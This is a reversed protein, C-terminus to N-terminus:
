IIGLFFRSRAEKDEKAITIKMKKIDNVIWENVVEKVLIMKNCCAGCITFVCNVRKSPIKVRGPFKSLRCKRRRTYPICDVGMARISTFNTKQLIVLLSSLVKTAKSIMRKLSM